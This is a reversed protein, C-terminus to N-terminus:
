GRPMNTRVVAARYRAVEKEMMEKLPQPAMWSAEMSIQSLRQQFDADTVITKLAKELQASVASSVGIPAALAYWAEYLADSLGLEGYAPVAPLFGTRKESIVALSRLKGDQLLAQSAALTDFALQVDGRVVGVLADASGKYPVATMRVGGALSLMEGALHPGTGLGFTAYNMAGPKERAAALLAPLDAYPANSMTVIVLPARAVLGIPQLQRFPDYSLQQRVAPNVTFTSSGSFLLTHGDTPASAVAAAGIATGAGPRNDVLVRQGLVQGLRDAVLRAALDTGGGPPFPVVMRIPQNPWGQALAPRSLLGATALSSGLLLNRRSILSM